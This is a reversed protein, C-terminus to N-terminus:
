SRLSPPDSVYYCPLLFRFFLFSRHRLTDPFASAPPFPSDILPNPCSRLTYLLSSTFPPHPPPLVRLFVTGTTTSVLLCSRPPFSVSAIMRFGLSGRFVSGAFLRRFLNKLKFIRPIPPPFTFVGCFCDVEKDRFPPAVQLRTPNEELFTISSFFGALSLFFFFFLLCFYPLTTKGRHRYLSVRYNM